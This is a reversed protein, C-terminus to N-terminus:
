SQDDEDSSVRDLANLIQEMDSLDDTQTMELDQLICEAETPDKGMAVLAAVIQKQAEVYAASQKAHRQAAALYELLVARQM